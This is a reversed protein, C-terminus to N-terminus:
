IDDIFPEDGDVIVDNGGFMAQRHLHINIRAAAATGPSRIAGPEGNATWEITYTGWIDLDSPWTSDEIVRQAIESYTETGDLEKDRRFAIWEGTQPLDIRPVNTMPTPPTPPRTSGWDGYILIASNHRRVLSNYIYRERILIERRGGLGHFKDPFSSGSIVLEIEPNDKSVAEVIGSAWMERSLLDDSWGLDVFISFDKLKKLVKEILPFYNQITGFEIRVVVGRDIKEINKIQEDFNLPVGGSLRLVPIAHAMGLIVDYYKSFGGRPDFLEKFEQYSETNSDINLKSADLDLAFRRNGMASTIKEWTKELKKANPWPRGIILPFIRDKTSAPLQTLAKIEAVRAYLTPCYPFNELM